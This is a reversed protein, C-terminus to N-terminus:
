SIDLDQSIKLVGSPNELERFQTITILYTSTVTPFKMTQKLTVGYKAQLFRPIDRIVEVYVIFRDV